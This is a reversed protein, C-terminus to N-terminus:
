RRQAADHSTLVLFASQACVCTCQGNPLLEDRKPCERDDTRHGWQGCRRCRVQRLQKGFPKFTVAIDSRYEGALPANKLEPFREIQQALTAAQYARVGAEKELRTVASEDFKWSSKKEEDAENANETKEGELARNFQKKFQEVEDTIDPM